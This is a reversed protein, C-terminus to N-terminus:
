KTNVLCQPRNHVIVGKQGCPTQRLSRSPPPLLYNLEEAWGCGGLIWRPGPSLYIVTGDPWM